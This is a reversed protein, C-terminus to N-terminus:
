NINEWWQSFVQKSDDLRVIEGIMPILLEFNELQAAEYIKVLPENWTHKSIAYKSHYVTLLKNSNLDKVTYVLEDLLLHIYDWDNSYRGNEIIALHIKGFQKAIKEFHAGYHIRWIGSSGREGSNSKRVRELREGSPAKGFSKTEAVVVVTITVFLLMSLLIWMMRLKRKKIKAQCM